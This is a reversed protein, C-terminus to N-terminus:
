KVQDKRWLEGTFANYVWITPIESKLLQHYLITQNWASDLSKQTCKIELIGQDTLFDIEGTLFNDEQYGMVPIHYNQIKFSELGTKEDSFILLKEIDEKTLDQDLFGGLSLKSIQKFRVLWWLLKINEPNLEVGLRNIFSKAVILYNYYDKCVSDSVINKETVFKMKEEQEWQIVSDEINIVKGGVQEIKRLINEPKQHEKFNLWDKRSILLDLNLKIKKKMLKHYMIWEVLIGCLCPNVIHKGLGKGKFVLQPRHWNKALDENIKQLSVAQYQKIVKFNFLQQDLWVVPKMRSHYIHEFLYLNKKARSMAVYLKSLDDLSSHSFFHKDDVVNLLIVTEFERGKAKTISSIETITPLEKKIEQLFNAAEVTKVVPSLIAIDTSIKTIEKIKKIIQPCCMLNGTTKFLIPKTGGKIGKMKPYSPYLFNLIDCIQQSSRFNKTLTKRVAEKGVLGILFAADAGRWGYIQQREDGCITLFSHLSIKQIVKFIEENVDQYEDFFIYDLGTIKQSKVKNLWLNLDSFDQTWQYCFAHVTGCWGLDKSNIGYHALKRMADIALFKNYVFLGIKSLSIKLQFHMWVIKLILTTTKGSGPCANIILNVKPDWQIISLQEKTPEM